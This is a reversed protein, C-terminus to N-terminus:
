IYFTELMLYRCLKIKMCYKVAKKDNNIKILPILPPKVHIQVAGASWIRKHSVNNM